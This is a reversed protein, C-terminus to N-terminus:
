DASSRIIYGSSFHVSANRLNFALFLQYNCSSPCITEHVNSQGIKQQLKM